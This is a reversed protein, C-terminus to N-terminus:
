ENSKSESTISFSSVQTSSNGIRNRIERAPIGLSITLRSVDRTVVAGAGIICGNGIHVGDLITVNGGIWCDEGITVGKRTTGQLRIPTEQDSFNHNESYININPGIITNKGIRVPGRVSIFAGPAIGVGDEIVLSEGLESLVGTCEITSNRGLSINNGFSIGGRSLADIYCNDSITVGRGCSIKRKARIQVHKGVFVRSGKHKKEFHLRIWFGRWLQVGKTLLISFLSSAPISKDVCYDEGKTKSILKNIIKKM